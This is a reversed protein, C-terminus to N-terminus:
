YLLGDILLYSAYIQMESRTPQVSNLAGYADGFDRDTLYEDKFCHPIDMTVTSIAMATAPPMRSLADAVVNTLGPVYEISMHFNSLFEVWRGQRSNMMPQTFIYQLSRHDTKVVSDAGLLYHKWTRYAHVIAMFEKDYVPYRLQVASFKKSAFAIVRDNQMLVGGTAKDSPDTMVVFPLTPDPIAM